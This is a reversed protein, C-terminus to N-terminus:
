KYTIWGSGGKCVKITVWDSGAKSLGYAFHQGNESYATGRISTTGDESLKNPDFFIEAESDLKAQKYLVSSFLLVPLLGASQVLIMLNLQTLVTVILVVSSLKPYFTNKERKWKDLITQWGRRLYFHSIYLQYM